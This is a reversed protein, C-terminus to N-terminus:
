KMGEFLEEPTMWHTFVMSSHNLPEQAQLTPLLYFYLILFFTFSYSTRKM